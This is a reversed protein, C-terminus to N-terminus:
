RRARRASALSPPPRPMVSELTSRLAQYDVPKTFVTAPPDLDLEVALRDPYNTIFVIPMTPAISRTYRAVAIAQNQRRSVDAILVDPLLPRMLLRLAARASLALDVTHGDDVLLQALRQGAERKLQAASGASVAVACYDKRSLSAVLEATSGDGLEVFLLARSTPSAM